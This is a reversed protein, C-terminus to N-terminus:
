TSLFACFYVFGHVVSLPRLYLVDCNPYRLVFVMGEGGRGETPMWLLQRAVGTPERRYRRPRLRSGPM